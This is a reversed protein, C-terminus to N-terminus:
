SLSEIVRGVLTAMMAGPVANGIQAVQDRKQGALAYDADFDQGLKLENPQLMRFGCDEIAPLQGEVVAHQEVTAVTPLPDGSDRVDQGQRYTFLATKDKTTVTGLVAQGADRSHGQKSAPGNPSGYNAIVLAHHTGRAAITPIPDEGPTSTKAHKRQTDLLYLSNITTQTGMPQTGAARPTGNGRGAIVAAAGPELLYLKSGTTVAAMAEDAAIRPVNNKMNSVVIGQEQRTTTAPLPQSGPDRTRDSEDAHTTPVVLARDATAHIAKLPDDTNWARVYGPREFTNGGVVIVMSTGREEALKKLGREIRKVTNAALPRSRDGIRPAPLSWDIAAAAPRVALAMPAGCKPCGYFYSSGLTGTTAGPKKWTQRGEGLEDCAFCYGLAYVALDPPKNGKKWFVVFLRDRSQPVGVVSANLHVLEFHYGLAGMANLWAAFLPGYSGHQLKKRKPLGWKVAQEVNEVIIAEYEHHEAFRPVDWMTARSREAAKDGDPDFLSPDDKPRGRAYSHHTCEPSTLLIDARPYRRPDVVAVDACDIHAEGHNLGYTECAIPWHNMGVLPVAGARVAGATSGGAGCFQDHFTLSM